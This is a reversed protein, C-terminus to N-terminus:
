STSVCWGASRRSLIATLHGGAGEGRRCLGHRRRDRGEGSGHNRGGAGHTLVLTAIPRKARRVVLRADGERDTGGVDHLGAVREPRDRAAERQARAAAGGHSSSPM